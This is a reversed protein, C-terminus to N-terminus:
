MKALKRGKKLYFEELFVLVVLVLPVSLIAGVVGALRFGVLLALLTVIPHLGASRQMIKPVLFSAELQQILFTLAIAALGTLPSVGFGVIIVPISATFPGINPVAELIGALLALPLAYPIGLLTLGVFTALGVVCMLILQAKAWGSLRIELKNLVDVLRNLQGETFFSALHKKIDKRAMSFYLGFLLVTVLSFINTAVGIGIRLIQGPLAGLQSTLERAADQVLEVPINLDSLYKPLAQAFSTTQEVLAPVLAAVTFILFGIMGFYVLLVSAVRPIKARELKTITPNLILMILLAVLIQILIENITILFWVLAGLALAFLITKHSIEIKQPMHEIKVM